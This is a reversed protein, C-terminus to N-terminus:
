QKKKIEAPFVDFMLAKNEGVLGVPHNGYGLQGNFFILNEQGVRAGVLGRDLGVLLDGKGVRVTVSDIAFPGVPGSSEFTYGAYFLYVSDGQQITPGPQLSDPLVVRVVGEYHVIEYDAFNSQIYEDIYKNQDINAERVESQCSLASPLAAALLLLLFLYPRIHSM